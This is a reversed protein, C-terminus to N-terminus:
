EVTQIDRIVSATIANRSGEAVVSNRTMNVSTESRQITGLNVNREVTGAINRITNQYVYGSGANWLEAWQAETPLDNKFFVVEDICIDVNTLSGVDGFMTDKIASQTFSGGVDSNLTYSQHNINIFPVGNTNLGCQIFYWNDPNPFSTLSINASYNGGTESELGFFIQCVSSGFTFMRLRTDGDVFGSTNSSMMVIQNFGSIPIGKFQMWMGWAVGNDGRTGADATPLHVRDTALCSLGSYLKGTAFTPSGVDITADLSGKSDKLTDNFTWYGEIIDVLSM